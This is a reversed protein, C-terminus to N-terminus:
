LGWKGVADQTLSQVLLIVGEGDGSGVSTAAEYLFRIVWGLPRIHGVLCGIGGKLM